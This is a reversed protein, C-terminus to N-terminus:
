NTQLPATQRVNEGVPQPQKASSAKPPSPPPAQLNERVIPRPPPGDQIVCKEPNANRDSCDPNAPAARTEPDAAVAYSTSIALALVAIGVRTKMATDTAGFM